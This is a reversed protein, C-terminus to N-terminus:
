NRKVEGRTIIENLEADTLERADRKSSLSVHQSPMGYKRSLLEKGAAIRDRRQVDPDNVTDRLMTVVELASDTLIEAVADRGSEAQMETILQMAWPQSHITSITVTAYGTVEAIEKHNLGKAKLICVNRHEFKERKIHVKPDRANFLPSDLRSIGDQESHSNYKPSPEEGRPRGPPHNSARGDPQAHPTSGKEEGLVYATYEDTVNSSNM